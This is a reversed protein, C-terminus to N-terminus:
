YHRPSREHQKSGSWTFDIFKRREGSPMTLECAISKQEEPRHSSTAFHVAWLCFCRANCFYMEGQEEALVYGDPSVEAM